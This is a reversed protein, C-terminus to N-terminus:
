ENVHVLAVADIGIQTMQNDQKEKSINMRVVINAPETLDWIGISVWEGSHAQQNMEAPNEREVVKGETVLQFDVIATANSAPVWVLLEYKGAQLFSNAVWDVRLNNGIASVWNEGTLDLSRYSKNWALAESLSEGQYPDNLPSVQSGFFFKADTDDMLASLIRGDPLADIIQRQADELKAIMIRDIAFPDEASRLSVASTISLNQGQGIEYFGLLRWEDRKQSVSGSYSVVGNGRYPNTQNDNLLVSFEQVGNSYQLTDLIYFGYVGANMPQDMRWNLNVDGTNTFYFTQDGAEPDASTEATWVEANEFGPSVEVQTEDLIWVFEASGPVPPYVNNVDAILFASPPILTPTPTHTPTPTLTPTLTPTATATPTLTVTPTYTGKVWQIYHDPNRQFVYYMAAGILVVALFIIGMSSLTKRKRKKRLELRRKREITRDWNEANISNVLEDVNNSSSLNQILNEIRRKAGSKRSVADYVDSLFEETKRDFNSM